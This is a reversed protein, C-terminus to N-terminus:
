EPSRRQGYAQEACMQRAADALRQRGVTQLWAEAARQTTAIAAILPEVQSPETVRECRLHMASTELQHLRQDLWEVAPDGQEIAQQLEQLCALCEDILLNVRCIAHTDSSPVNPISMFDGTPGLTAPQISDDM